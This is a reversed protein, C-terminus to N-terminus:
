AVVRPYIYSALVVLLVTAAVLVGFEAALGFTSTGGAIM